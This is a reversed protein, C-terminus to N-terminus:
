WKFKKNEQVTIATQISPHPSLLPTYLLLTSNTLFLNIKLWNWEVRSEREEKWDLDEKGKLRM